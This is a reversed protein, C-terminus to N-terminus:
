LRSGPPKRESGVPRSPLFLLVKFCGTVTVSPPSHFFPRSVIPPQPHWAQFSGRIIKRQTIGAVLNRACVKDSTEKLSLTKRFSLEFVLLNRKDQIFLTIAGNM